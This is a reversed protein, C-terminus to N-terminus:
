HATRWMGLGGSLQSYLPVPHFPSQQSYETFETRKLFRGGFVRSISGNDPNWEDVVNHRSKVM